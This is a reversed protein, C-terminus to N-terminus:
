KNLFSVLLRRFELTHEGVNYLNIGEMLDIYDKNTFKVFLNFDTVALDDKFHAYNAVKGLDQTEEDGGIHVGIIKFNDKENLIAAGSSGGLSIIKHKGNTNESPFVEGTNIRQRTVGLPYHYIVGTTAKVLETDSILPANDFFSIFDEEELGLESNLSLFGEFLCLDKSPVKQIIAKDIFITGFDLDIGKEEYFKRGLVFFRPHQPDYNNREQNLKVFVHMATIGFARLKGDDTKKAGLLIGSGRGKFINDEYVGIQGAFFSKDEQDRDENIPHIPFFDDFLHQDFTYVSSITETEPSYRENSVVFRSRHKEFDDALISERLGERGANCIHASLIIFLFLIFKIIKHKKM